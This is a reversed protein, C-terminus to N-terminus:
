SLYSGIGGGGAGILFCAVSRGLQTLTLHCLPIFSGDIVLCGTIADYCRFSSSVCFVRVKDFM